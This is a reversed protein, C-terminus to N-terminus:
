RAWDRDSFPFLKVPNGDAPRAICSRSATSPCHRRIVHSSHKHQPSMLIDTRPQGTRHVRENAVWVDQLVAGDCREHRGYVRVPGDGELEVKCLGRTFILIQQQIGQHAHWAM